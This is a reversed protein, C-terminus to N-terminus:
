RWNTTRSKYNVNEFTVVKIVTNRFYGGGRANMSSYLQESNV